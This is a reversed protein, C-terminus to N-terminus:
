RRRRRRTRHADFDAQIEQDTVGQSELLSDLHRGLLESLEGRLDAPIRGPEALPLFLGSVKGHRTVLVPEGEGFVSAMQTRLERIGTVRM